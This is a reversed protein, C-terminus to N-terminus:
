APLYIFVVPNRSEGSHRLPPFSIKKSKRPLVILAPPPCSMTKPPPPFSLSLPSPNAIGGKHANHRCGSNGTTMGACAPIWHNLCAM